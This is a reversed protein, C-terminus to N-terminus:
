CVVPKELYRYTTPSFWGRGGTPPSKKVLHSSGSSSDNQHILGKQFSFVARQSYYVDILILILMVQPHLSYSILVFISCSCHSCCFISNKTPDYSSFQQKTSPSPSQGKTPLPIFIQHPYKELHQSFSCIKLQHPDWWGLLSFGASLLSFSSSVSRCIFYTWKESFTIALIQLFFHAKQSIRVKFSYPWVETFILLM